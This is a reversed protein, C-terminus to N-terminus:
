RYETINFNLSNFLKEDNIEFKFYFEFKNFDDLFREYEKYALSLQSENRNETYNKISYLYM